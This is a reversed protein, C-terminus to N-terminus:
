NRYSTDIFTVNSELDVNYKKGVSTVVRMGALYEDKDAYASFSLVKEPIKESFKKLLGELIKQLDEDVAASDPIEGTKSIASGDETPMGEADSESPGDSVGDSNKPNADEKEKEPIEEKHKTKKEKAM